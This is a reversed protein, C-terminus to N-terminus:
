MRTCTTLVLQTNIHHEKRHLDYYKQLINQLTHGYKYYLPTHKRINTQKNEKQKNKKIRTIRKLSYSHM